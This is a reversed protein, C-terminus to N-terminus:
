RRHCIILLVERIAKAHTDILRGIEAEQKANQQRLSANDAVLSNYEASHLPMIDLTALQDKYGQLCKESKELEEKIQTDDFVVDEKLARKAEALASWYNEQAIMEKVRNPIKDPNKLNDNIRYEARQAEKLIREHSKLMAANNEAVIGKQQTYFVMLSELREDLAFRIKEKDTILKEARVNHQAIVEQHKVGDKMLESVKRLEKDIITTIHVTNGRHVENQHTCMCLPCMPEDESKCLFCFLEQSRNHKECLKNGLEKEEKKM